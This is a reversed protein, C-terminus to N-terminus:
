LKQKGRDDTPAYLILKSDIEIDKKIREKISLLNNLTDIRPYGTTVTIRIMIVNKLIFIGKLTQIFGFKRLCSKNECYKKIIIVKLQM